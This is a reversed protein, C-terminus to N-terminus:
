LRTSIGHKHTIKKQSCFLNLHSRAPAHVKQTQIPFRDRRNNITMCHHSQVFSGGKANDISVVYMWEERVFHPTTWVHSREDGDPKLVVIGYSSGYEMSYV